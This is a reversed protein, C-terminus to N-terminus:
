DGSPADVVVEEVPYSAGLWSSALQEFHGKDGTTYLRVQRSSQGQSSSTEGLIIPLLNATELGPDVLQVSQPLAKSIAPALFPYHTCGLIVVDKDWDIGALVDSVEQEVEPADIQGSEVLPVFSPCAISTVETQPSSQHLLDEYVGSAVTASTALVVIKHTKTVSLAKTVGPVIVGVVPISLQAQLEDLLLASATNCALVLVKIDKALLFAVLELVHHRIEDASLGGYPARNDDGIFVMDEEPLLHLAEKLVSLGGLGSDLFGIARRTM